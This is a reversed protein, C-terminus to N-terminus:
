SKSTLGKSALNVVSPTGLGDRGLFIGVHNHRRDPSDELSPYKVMVDGPEALDISSIAKGRSSKRQGEATFPVVILAGEWHSQSVLTSCDISGRGHRSRLEEFQEYSAGLWKLAAACIRYPETNEKFGAERIRLLIKAPTMARQPDEEARDTM